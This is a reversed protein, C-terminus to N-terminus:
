KYYKYWICSINELNSWTYGNWETPGEPIGPRVDKGFRSSQSTHISCIFSLDLLIHVQLNSTFYLVISKQSKNFAHRYVRIGKILIFVIYKVRYICTSGVRLHVLALIHKVPLSAKSEHLLESTFLSLHTQASHPLNTSSALHSARVTYLVASSYRTSLSALCRVFFAFSKPMIM